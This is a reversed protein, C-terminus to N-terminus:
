KEGLIEIGRVVTHIGKKLRDLGFHENPAHVNDSPLGYGIGVVDLKLADILDAVVPISGGTLIHQCPQGFIEEYAKAFALALKSDPRSRYARGGHLVEVSIQMGKKVNKMLFDKVLRGIKDPDQDPVLRCSIKIVTEAPFSLRLARGRIVGAFAMSRSRPASGSLTKGPFAKKLPSRM